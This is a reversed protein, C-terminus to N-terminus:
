AVGALFEGIEALTIGLFKNTQGNPRGYQRFRFQAYFAISSPVAEVSLITFAGLAHRQEYAMTMATLLLQRGFAANQFRLDIGLFSILVAPYDTIGGRLFHHDKRYKRSIATADNQLTFYGIIADPWWLVFTNAIHESRIADDRLFRDVDANGTSFDAALQDFNPKAAVKLIHSFRPDGSTM